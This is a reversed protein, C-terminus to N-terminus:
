LYDGIFTVLKTTDGPPNESPIRIVDACLEYLEQRRQGLEELLTDKAV